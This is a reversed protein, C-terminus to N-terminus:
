AFLPERLQDKHSMAEPVLCDPLVKLLFIASQNCVYRNNLTFYLSLLCGVFFIIGAAMAGHSPTNNSSPATTTNQGACTFFVISITAIDSTKLDLTEQPPCWRFKIHNSQM